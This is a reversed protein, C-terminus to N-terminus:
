RRSRSWRSTGTGNLPTSQRSPNTWHRKMRLCAAMPFTRTIRFPSYRMAMRACLTWGIGSTKRRWRTIRSFPIPATDGNFIVNRHLNQQNPTSTWEYAIFTTFTGPDNHRNAAAIIEDWTDKQVQPDILAAIEPLNKGKAAIIDTFVTVAVDSDPDNVRAAYPHKSLPHTPDGMASFTGMYLAHDTVAMFDLPRSIQYTKGLPHELPKGKAFEYAEDPTARTSFVYADFSYRTHMHLEGFLPKRASGDDSQALTSVAIGM